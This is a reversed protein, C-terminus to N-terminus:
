GSLVGKVFELLDGGGDYSMNELYTYSDFINTVELQEEKSLVGFLEMPNSEKYNSLWDYSADGEQKFPADTYFSVINLEGTGYLNSVTDKLTKLGSEPTDGAGSIHSFNDFASPVNSPNGRQLETAYYPDSDSDGFFTVSVKCEKNQKSFERELYKATEKVQAEIGNLVPDTMSYSADIYIIVNAATYDDVSEEPPDSPESVDDDDDIPDDISPEPAPTNVTDPCPVPRDALGLAAVRYPTSPINTFVSLGEIIHVTHDIIVNEKSEEECDRCPYLVELIDNDRVGLAPAVISNPLYGVVGEEPHIVYCRSSEVKDSYSSPNFGYNYFDNGAMDYSRPYKRSDSDGKLGEGVRPPQMLNPPANWRIYHSQYRAGNKGEKLIVTDTGSAPKSPYSKNLPLLVEQKNDIVEDFDFFASVQTGGFLAVRKDSDYGVINGFFVPVKPVANGNWHPATDALLTFFLSDEDIYGELQVKSNGWWNTDKYNEESINYITTLDEDVLHIPVIPSQMTKPYFKDETFYEIDLSTRVLDKSSTSIVKVSEISSGSEKHTHYYYSDLTYFYVTNYDVLEDFKSIAWPILNKPEYSGSSKAIEVAKEVNIKFTGTSLAMGLYENDYRRMVKHKTVCVKGKGSTYSPEIWNGSSDSQLITGEEVTVKYLDVSDVDDNFNGWWPDGNEDTFGRIVSWFDELLTENTLTTKVYPM